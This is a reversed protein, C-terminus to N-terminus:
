YHFFYRKLVNRKLFIKGNDNLFIILLEYIYSLIKTTLAAVLTTM